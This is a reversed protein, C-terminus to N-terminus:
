GLPPRLRVRLEAGSLLDIREGDQRDDDADDGVGDGVDKLLLERLARGFRKEGDDRRV